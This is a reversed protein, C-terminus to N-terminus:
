PPIDKPLLEPGTRLTCRRLRSLAVGAFRPWVPTDPFLRKLAATLKLESPLRCTSADCAQIKVTLELPSDDGKARTVHVVLVAKDEYVMYDGVDKDKVKKGAPYNIKVNDLAGKAKVSVVTQVPVLEDLGVPNAYLHWGKDIALTLTVM